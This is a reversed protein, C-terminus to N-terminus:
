SLPLWERIISPAPMRLATELCRTKAGENGSISKLYYNCYNDIYDRYETKRPCGSKISILFLKEAEDVEGLILNLTALLAYYESFGRSYSSMKLLESRSIEYTKQRCLRIANAWLYADRLRSFM